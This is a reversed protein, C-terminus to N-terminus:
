KKGGAKAKELEENFCDICLNKKFRKQSSEIIRKVPWEKSGHEILQGCDQCYYEEKEPDDEPEEEPDAPPPLEEPEEDDEPLVEVNKAEIMKPDNRFLAASSEAYRQVMAKKMEPDDMNPVVYAVVFPKKLEEAAYTSKIMMAKRLARNLAKTECQEDLFLKETASKCDEYKSNKTAVVYRPEGSSDPISVTVQYAVDNREKCEGCKPAIKTAKAVEICKRCIKPIIPKSEVIQINSATMLKELGKKTLALESGQKYVDKDKLEPSIVVQNFIIKHLPSLEQMTKVPVLLNYKEAPYDNILVIEREKNESM